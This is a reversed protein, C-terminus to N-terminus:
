LKLADSTSNETGTQEGIYLSTREPLMVFALTPPLTAAFKLMFARSTPAQVQNGSAELLHGPLLSFLAGLQKPLTVSLVLEESILLLGERAPFTGPCAGTCIM